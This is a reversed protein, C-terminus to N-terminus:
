GFFGAVCGLAWMLLQVFRGYGCCRHRSGSGKGGANLRIVAPLWVSRSLFTCHEVEGWASSVDGWMAPLVAADVDEPLAHCAASIASSCSGALPMGPKFRRFGNLVGALVMISGLIITFIIAICSFGCTSIDQDPDESGDFKNVKVRALFISQSVLWHLLGSFSLLPISYIYPLQLYYTSRQLGSPGSPSTVRLCKRQHAFRSWEDASLMCTYLSNYSLYLCSLLIQPLNALLTNSLLSSSGTNGILSDTTLAGFGM